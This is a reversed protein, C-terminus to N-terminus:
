VNYSSQLAVRAAEFEAPHQMFQEAARLKCFISAAIHAGSSGLLQRALWFRGSRSLAQLMELVLEARGSVLLPMSSSPRSRSSM